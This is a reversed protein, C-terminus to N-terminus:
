RCFLKQNRHLKLFISAMVSLFLTTMQATSLSSHLTSKRCPQIPTDYHFRCLMHTPFFPILGSAMDKASTFTSELICAKPKDHAALWVAVAGGLSRGFLIIDSPPIQKIDM